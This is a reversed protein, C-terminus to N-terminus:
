HLKEIHDVLQGNAYAKSAEDIDNIDTVWPRINMTLMSEYAGRGMGKCIVAECDKIAEAMLAHRNQSAADYGHPQGDDHSSHPENSFHNHGLKERLEHNILQGGDITIVMYHTARGFHSSITKGDDTVVAIKM